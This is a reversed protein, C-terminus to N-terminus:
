PPTVTLQWHDFLIAIFKETRSTIVEPAWHQYSAAEAALRFDRRESDICRHLIPRKISWDKTDAERNLRGPLIALNGLRDAHEKVEAFSGFDKLWQRDRPPKRPLIHEVTVQEGDIYGPDSGMQYCLRRLVNKCMHKFYFTRSRLIALAEGITKDSVEFEPWEDISTTRRVAGTLEIFRNEQENPDTSALRPMWALRDLRAFFHETERHLDGKTTLWALIPAVWQRHDLWSLVEIHRHIVGALVGTGIQRQDIRRLADANSRFITRMFDLGTSNLMYLQQLEGELPKTSRKEIRQTRLHGLLENLRENGLQAQVGEWIHAAEEQEEPRMSYIIAIKAQESVDHPLRTTQEIGLMSWAEDEDDVEIIVFHCRTLLFEIFQARRAPQLRAPGLIDRMRDRNSILNREAPKLDALDEPNNLTAGPELVFHVFFTSMQQKTALRWGPQQGGSESASLLAQLRRRMETRQEAPMTEDVAALDRLVAFLMALTIARQHGDVLAVRDADPTRALYISGLSYRQKPGDMAGIVDSILRRVSGEPWAYARQFWPLEITRNKLFLAEVSAVSARLFGSM